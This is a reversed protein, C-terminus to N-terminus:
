ELEPTAKKLPSQLDSILSTFANEVRADRIESRQDGTEIRLM